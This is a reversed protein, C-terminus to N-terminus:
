KPTSVNNYLRFAIDTMAIYPSDHGFGVGDFFRLM